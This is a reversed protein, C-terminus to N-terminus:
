SSPSLDSAGNFNLVEVWYYYQTGTSIGYHNFELVETNDAGDYILDM